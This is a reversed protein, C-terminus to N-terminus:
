IITRGGDVLLTQGVVMDSAPSALYLIAGVLEHPQGVRGAPIAQTIWDRYEPDDLLGEVMPTAFDCPAIGNVNVGHRIWEAGLTKTLQVIAGKSACYTVQDPVGVFADTSAFTIIKGSRREIMHRGFEQCMLFTGGVNTRFVTEWDELTVDIASGGIFVGAANVVVDVHSHHDLVRRALSRVDEAKSIDALELQASGGRESIEAMVREGRAVDRGVLVVEAGACALARAAEAGLGSTGGSVVATAGTLAFIEELYDGPRRVLGEGPSTPTTM